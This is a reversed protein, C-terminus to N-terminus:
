TLKSIAQHVYTAAPGPAPPGLTGYALLALDTGARALVLVEGVQQGNTTATIQWADSQDGAPAMPLREVHGTAGTRGGGQHCSALEGAVLSFAGEARGPAMAAVAENFLPVQSPGDGLEVEAEALRGADAPARLCGAAFSATGGFADNGVAPDDTSGLLAWGGGLDSADVLRSALAAEARQSASLPPPAPSAGGAVVLAAVVGATLLTVTVAAVVAARLGIRREPVDSLFPDVEGEPDTVTPSALHAGPFSHDGAAAVAALVGVGVGHSERRRRQQWVRSM